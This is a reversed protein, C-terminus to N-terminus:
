KAAPWGWEGRQIRCRQRGDWGHDTPGGRRGDGAILHTSGPSRRGETRRRRTCTQRHQVRGERAVSPDIKAGYKRVPDVLATSEAHLLLASGRRYFRHACAGATRERSSLTTTALRPRPTKQLVMPEYAARLRANYTRKPVYSQCGM